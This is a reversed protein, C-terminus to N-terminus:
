SRNPSSSGRQGNGVVCKIRGAASFRLKKGGGPHKIAKRKKIRTKEEQVERGFSTLDGRPDARLGLGATEPV